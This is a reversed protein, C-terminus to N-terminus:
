NTREVERSKVLNICIERFAKMALTERKGALSIVSIDVNVSLENPLIKRLVKQEEYKQAFHAPLYGLHKGALIVVAVSEINAATATSNLGKLPLQLFPELQYGREVWNVSELKSFSIEQDPVDFLAHDKGCYLYQKECYLRTTRILESRNDFAGLAMDLQDDVINRHLKSQIDQVIDLEVRPAQDIFRSILEVTSFGSETMTHDMIGVRLSGVTADRILNIARRFNDLSVNLRSYEELVTKGRETLSFGARGRTCLSFGIRREFGTIQSSITSENINLIDQAASYSGCEAVCKFVKLARLDASSIQNLVCFGRQEM